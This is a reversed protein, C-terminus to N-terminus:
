ELLKNEGARHFNHQFGFLLIDNLLFSMIRCKCWIIYFFKAFVIFKINERHLLFKVFSCVVLCHTTICFICKKRREIICNQLSISWSHQHLFFLKWEDFCFSYYQWWLNMKWLEQARVFSFKKQSFKKNKKLIKFFNKVVEHM